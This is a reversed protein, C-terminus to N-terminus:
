WKSWTCCLPCTPIYDDAAEPKYSLMTWKLCRCPNEVGLLQQIIQPYANLRTWARVEPSKRITLTFILTLQVFLDVMNQMCQVKIIYGTAFWVLAGDCWSNRDRRKKGHQWLRSAGLECKVDAGHISPTRASSHKQQESNVTLGVLASQAGQRTQLVASLSLHM